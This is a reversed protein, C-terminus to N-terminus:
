EKKVIPAEKNCDRCVQGVGRIYAAGNAFRIPDEINREKSFGMLSFCVSCFEENGAQREAFLAGRESSAHSM